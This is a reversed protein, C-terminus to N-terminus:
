EDGEGPLTLVVTAPIFGRVANSLWCQEGNVLDELRVVQEVCFGYELAYRRTTGANGGSSLPPTVWDHGTRNAWQSRRRFYPTTISGEMVEGQPNILLVEIPDQPSTIGVRERAATYINRATTKHTTFASPHTRQPDIYLRWPSVIISPRISPLLLSRAGEAAAPQVDVALNGDIDVVIRLRWPKSRDPIYKDLSDAFSEVDRRLLAVAQDWQFEEAAELLRDRHYSLLYYPSNQPQPYHQLAYQAVIEPLEPDFRLSSVIQFQADVAGPLSFYSAM